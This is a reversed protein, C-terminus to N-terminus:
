GIELIDDFFFEGLGNLTVRIPDGINGVAISDVTGRVAVPLAERGSPMTALVEVKYTGADVLEGQEDLGDWSFDVRGSASQEIDITRILAGSEDTVRVSLSQAEEPIYVAGEVTTEGDFSWSDSPVLVEKGVLTAADLTQTNFMSYALAQFNVNLEDLGAVAGFQALQGLFENSDLPKTPDQNKLQAVMLTLFEDQGLEDNAPQAAQQQTLGLDTYRQFNADVQM